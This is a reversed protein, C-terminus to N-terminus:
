AMAYIANAFYWRAAVHSLAFGLGAPTFMIALRLPLSM